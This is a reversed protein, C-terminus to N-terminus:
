FLNYYTNLIAEVAENEKTIKQYSAPKALNCYKVIDSNKLIVNNQINAAAHINFM